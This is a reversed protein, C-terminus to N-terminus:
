RRNGPTNVRKSTSLPILNGTTSNTSNSSSGNVVFYDIKNELKGLRQLIDDLLVAITRKLDAYGAMAGNGGNVLDKNEEALAKVYRRSLELIQDRLETSSQHRPYQFTYRLLMLGWIFGFALLLISLKQSVSKRSFTLFM